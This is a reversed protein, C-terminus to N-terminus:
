IFYLLFKGKLDKGVAVSLLSDKGNTKIILQQLVTYSIAAMLLVFGYLALTPSAFYNEGM